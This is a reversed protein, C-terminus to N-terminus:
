HIITENITKNLFKGNLYKEKVQIHLVKETYAAFIGYGNKINSFIGVTKNLTALFGQDYSNNNMYIEFSKKFKYYEDSVSRFVLFFDSGIIITDNFNDKYTTLLPELNITQNQEKFNKDSILIFPYNGNTYAESYLVPDDSCNFLTYADTVFNNEQNGGNYTTPIFIEYFNKENPNDKITINLDSYNQLMDQSYGTNLKVDISFEPLTPIKTEASLLTDNKKVELIYTQGIRPKIKSLYFGSDTYNLNESTDSWLIKVNADPIYYDKTDTDAKTYTLSVIVNTDPTILSNVVMYKPAFPSKIDIDNECSIAFIFVLIFVFRLFKM